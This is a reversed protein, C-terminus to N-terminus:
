VEVLEEADAELAILPRGPMDAALIRLGNSLRHEEVAPFEYPRPAGPSPREAITM